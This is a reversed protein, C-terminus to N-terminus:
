EASPLTAPTTPASELCLEAAALADVPPLDDPNANIAPQPSVSIKSPSPGRLSKWLRQPWTKDMFPREFLLFLISGSVLVCLAHLTMLIAFRLWLNSGDYVWRVYDQVLYLCFGHYLYITYCMGGITTIWRISFLRSFIQGRFAGIYALLMCPLVLWEYLQSQLLTTNPCYIFTALGGWGALGLLDWLYGLRPQRNWSVLYLDVLLFGLLFYRLQGLVTMHLMPPNWFHESVAGATIALILLGRRFTTRQVLFVWALMPALIYFQVEVELSWAVLNVTSGDQYVANHVYFASALFHPFIPWPTSHVILLWVLMALTLNILYPPELRTVRRVFYKNLSVQSRGMLHSEAFPLGLVFGSIVFFLQVGFWGRLLFDNVFQAIPGSPLHGALTYHHSHYIFVWAIAAFRLGDIQPIFRGSSTVRSLKALLAQNIQGVSRM